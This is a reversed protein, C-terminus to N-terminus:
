RTIRLQVFGNVIFQPNNSIYEAMEVMWKVEVEKLVQIHLDTPQIPQLELGFKSFLTQM